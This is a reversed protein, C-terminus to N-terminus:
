LAREDFQDGLWSAAKKRITDHDKSQLVNDLFNIAKQSTEHVGVASVFRGKLDDSDADKYFGTLLPISQDNDAKGLWIVPLNKLDVHLSLNSIKIKSLGIKGKDNKSFHFLLAVDKLVKKESKKRGDIEDYVRQATQRIMKDYSMDPTLDKVKINFLVETLSPDDDRRPWSYSGTFSHIGMWKQINYGIWFGDRYTKSESQKKAWSWRNKLPDTPKPHHLIKEGYGTSISASALLVVFFSSSFISKAQM